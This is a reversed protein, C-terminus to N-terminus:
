FASRPLGLLVADRSPHADTTVEHRRIILPTAEFPRDGAKAVGRQRHFGRDLPLTAVLREHREAVDRAAGIHGLARRLRDNETPGPVVSVYPDVFDLDNVRDFQGGPGRLPRPPLPETRGLHATM